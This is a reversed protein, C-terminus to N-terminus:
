RITEADDNWRKRQEAVRQKIAEDTTEVIPYAMDVTVCMAQDLINGTKTFKAGIDYIVTRDNAGMKKKACETLVQNM